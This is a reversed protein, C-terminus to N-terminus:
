SSAKWTIAPSDCTTTAAGAQTMTVHTHLRGSARVKGVKGQLEYDIRLSGNANSYAFSDRFSRSASLPFDTLADGIHFAGEPSCPAGWGIRLESVDRLDRSLKVVAVDGQSTTGGYVRGTGATAKWRLSGDCSDVKARTQRDFFEVHAHASGAGKTSGLKGKVDLILVSSMNGTNTSGTVRASFAGNRRVEVRGGTFAGGSSVSDGSTCDGYFDLGITTVRSRDRSLRLFFPADDSTAGGYTAGQPAVAAAPAPGGFIVTRHSAPGVPGIPREISVAQAAAPVLAAGAVAVVLALAIVARKSAQM